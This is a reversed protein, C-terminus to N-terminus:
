EKLQRVINEELLAWLLDHKLAQFLLKELSQSLSLSLASKLSYGLIGALYSFSPLQNM